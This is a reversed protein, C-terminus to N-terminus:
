QQSQLEQFSATFLIMLLTTLRTDFTITTSGLLSNSLYHQFSFTLFFMGHGWITWCYLLVMAPTLRVSMNSDNYQISHLAFCQCWFINQCRISIAFILAQVRYLRWKRWFPFGCLSWFNKSWNLRSSDSARIRALLTFGDLELLCGEFRLLEFACIVLFFGVWTNGTM